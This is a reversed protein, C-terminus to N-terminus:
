DDVIGYIRFIVGREDCGNLRGTQNVRQLTGAREGNKCRDVTRKVGQGGTGDIGKQLRFVLPRENLDKGIM